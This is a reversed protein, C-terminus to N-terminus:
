VVEARGQLVMLPAGRAVRSHLDIIDHNFLRICGSSVAEGITSPEDTGHVRYNTEQGDRHIYLARAGLPNDIGGPLGAKVPGYRQPQVAIMNPTPAWGPWVATRGIVGAGKFEFGVKGVGCGYRVAKKGNLVFYLHRRPTDVIITGPKQPGNYDVIQRLFRPDIEELDLAPITFAGDTLESYVGVFSAFSNQSSSLSEDGGACGALGLPVSALFTRRTMKLSMSSKMDAKDKRCQLGAGCHGLPMALSLACEM